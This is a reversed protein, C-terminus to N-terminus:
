ILVARAGAAGFLMIPMRHLTFVSYAGMWGDMEGVHM